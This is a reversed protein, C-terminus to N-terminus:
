ELIVGKLFSNQKNGVKGKPIEAPDPTKTLGPKLKAAKQRIENTIYVSAQLPHMKNIKELDKYSNSLYKLVLASDDLSLLFTALDSSNNTYESVIKDAKDLEDKSIGYKAADSYMKEVKKMVEKQYEEYRTAAEKQEMEKKLNKQAQLLTAKRIAEERALIKKEFDQDYVDPIDPIKIDNKEAEIKEINARLKALEAEAKERKRREEFKEFSIENIRKNVAEQNIFSEQKENEESTQNNETLETDEIQENAQNETDTFQENGEM